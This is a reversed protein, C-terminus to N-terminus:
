LATEAVKVQTAAGPAVAVDLGRLSLAKWNLLEESAAASTGGGTTRTRLEEVLADGQLRVEPGASAASYSVRGKFGAEARLLKINLADAFYPELAHVPLQAASVDGQVALPDLAVTGQWEVKGPEGQPQRVLLSARTQMPKKGQLEFGKVGLQLDTVQLAVPQAAAGDLFQLAGREVALEALSLKWGAGAATGTAKAAQPETSTMWDSWMWHGNSFREVSGTPQMVKVRGLNVTQRGIEIRADQLELKQISALQDGALRARGAPAGAPLLSVRDATLKKIAVVLPEAQPDARWQLSAEASLSGQVRPKLVPALYPGALALPLSQLQADVEALVDSAQGSFQFKALDQSEPQGLSLSGEFPAMTAMPWRINTAKLHIDQARLRAVPQTGADAWHLSGDQLAVQAVEVQWAPAGASPSAPSEAKTRASSAAALAWNLRGGRGREVRVSPKVLQIDSLRLVRELPRAEELALALRDFRLLEAGQPDNMQVSQVSASGSLKLQPKQSQVFALKMDVDLVASHLKLPLSAPLYPLYPKLDLAQIRIAAETAHSDEFLLGAARSDFASGNLQFALRPETKVARLADFNSLFPVSLQLQRLTHKQGAALDQFDLSADRLNLNFLAFRQPGASADRPKALQETLRALIDDFDYKGDGLHTVRLQLGDVEVADLVPALRRLSEISADVYVRGVRLPPEGAGAAQAIALNEVSLELSWPKFDIRGVTFSRGLLASVRQELQSKLLPPVIVWSLAMLFVLAGLGGM